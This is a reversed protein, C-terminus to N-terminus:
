SFIRHGTQWLAFKYMYLMEEESGQHGAEWNVLFLIPRNGKADTAIKGHVQSCPAALFIIQLAM